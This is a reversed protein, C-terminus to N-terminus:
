KVQRTRELKRLDFGKTELRALLADYAAGNVEPTRSLVWLYERKPESVAVLQYDADIDIVWYDAWLFPIFSLWAPTFQVQLKPSNAAGIQRATGVAEKTKEDESTCRNIVRVSGDPQPRYEAKTNSVCTRQFWNPYKAIEFWTGMYRTVDLSAIPTLASSSQATSARTANDARASLACATLVLALCARTTTQLPKLSNMIEYLYKM